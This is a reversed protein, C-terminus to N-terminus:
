VGAETVLCNLKGPGVLPLATISRLQSPLRLIQLRVDWVKHYIWKHASVGIVKDTHHSAPHRCCSHKTWIRCRKTSRTHSLRCSGKLLAVDSVLSSRPRGPLTHTNKDCNNVHPKTKGFIQNIHEFFVPLFTTTAFTHSVQPSCVINTQCTIHKAASASSATMIHGNWNSM